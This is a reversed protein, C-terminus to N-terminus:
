RLRRRPTYHLVGTTLTFPEFYDSVSAYAISINEAEGDVTVTDPLLTNGDWFFSDWVFEDWLTATFNVARVEDAPQPIDTSGYGLTYGFRFEAYGEGQIETTADRYTKNVRPMGQFNFSLEIYADIDDGDFSTGKEMQYVWGDDSGFFMEESGDEAELSCACRVVDNFLVPMIGTVRKGVMTVYYCYQNSFFLRYQSRDRSIVSASALTRWNKLQSLVVNSLANHQFNGFAQSTQLDTIGHADLFMTNTMEQISYPYAGLEKRYPVLNWDVSSNGYLVSMRNRTFIALAGGGDSGPQLAFGTTDDGMGLEGAGTVVTWGFPYGISSHQVSGGFSLFLHKKHEFIHVPADLTMGTHIPVFYTGDFEFAPNVGDCGYMRKTVIAGGFNTNVFEFRGNPQLTIASQAGDLTLTGAGVTAAGAAFNGGAPASIVLTGEGTAGGLSGERVLVRRITATVGGQTLTGGDVITTDGNGLTFAVEYEFNVLAWGAATSKYMAAATGGANNRFAYKVDEFMWVGLVKGSGPVAAIDARYEDAALNRYQAHLKPTSSGNIVPDATAVAITPGGVHLNEGDVFTGSIKTLVFADGPLAIIVGTAASTAGTLTDGVAPGGSINAELVTYDADSPKDQGDFREYGAIRRYGAFLDQEFNQSTRCVGPRRQYTPTVLDLGGGFVITDTKVVVAAIAAAVATKKFSMRM